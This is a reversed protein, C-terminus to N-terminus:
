YSEVAKESKLQWGDSGAFEWEQKVHRENVVNTGAKLDLYRVMLDVTAKRSDENLDVAEVSTDTLRENRKRRNYIEGLERRSEDSMYAMAQDPRGWYVADNFRKIHQPLLAARDNATFGAQKFSDIAPALFCGSLTLVGLLLGIILRRMPKM